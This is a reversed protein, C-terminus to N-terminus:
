RALSMTTVLTAEGARVRCYYVGASVGNADWTVEHTGAPQRAHVLTAVRQGIANYVEVVVGAAEPLDYAITTRQSFPNPRSPSVAFTTPLGAAPAESATGGGSEFAYVIGSQGALYLRNGAIALRGGDEFRWVERGTEADVGVTAADSAVYVVGNAVVPPRYVEGVGPLSWLRRGTAEDYAVLSGSSTTFVKGYAIAPTVDGSRSWRVTNDRLDIASVPSATFLVSDRYAATRPWSYGPDGFQMTISGTGADFAYFNTNSWGAYVAADGYTPAWDFQQPLDVFWLTEGTFADYAFMGGYYGGNVFVKGAAVTPAEGMQSQTAFPSQWLRAGTAANLATVYSGPTGTATQIYVTGYAYAPMGADSVPGLGYGWAEEGDEASLAILEVGGPYSWVTLYVHDQAVIPARLGYTDQTVQKSWAVRLPATLTDVPNFGTHQANYGFQAWVSGSASIVTFPAAATPGWTGRTDRGRLYLVHEGGGLDSTEVEPAVRVMLRGFPGDTAEVPTGTGEAGVADVFYEVAAVGSAAVSSTDTVVAEVHLPVGAWVETAGLTLGRVAPGVTDVGTGTRFSVTVDDEPTGESAGDRDGDLGNGALDTLVGLASVQLEVGAPWFGTASAVTLTLGDASVANTTQVGTVDGGVSVVVSAPDIPESFTFVAPVDLGVQTAGALPTAAETVPPTTDPYRVSVEFQVVGYPGGVLVDMFGDQDVDQIVLADREGLGAGYTPSEWLVAKSPWGVVRVSEGAVVIEPATTEDVNAVRIGSVRSFGTQLTDVPAFTGAELVVVSGDARGVLVERTGDRELDAVDIATADSIATSEWELYRTQGDYVRVRGNGSFFVIETAADDDVNVLRIADVSGTSSISRWEVARTAGDLIVVQGATTGAVVETAGDGDVDGFAFATVTGLEASQWLVRPPSGGFASAQDEGGVFAEARGDGDADGVGLGVYRSRYWNLGEIDGTDWLLTHAADYAELAGGNSGSRESLATVLLEPVEDGDLDGVGLRFPGDTDTTRFEIEGSASDGVFLVDPGSSLHGAGWVVEVTGDGDPDGLAINTTSHEPNGVRWLVERTSARYSIVPGWQGAGVVIEWEGRVNTATLASLDDELPIEWLPTRYQGDFARLAYGGNYAVIEMAADADVNALELLTGFGDAYTWQVEHTAGDFVRGDSLVIENRGDGDVDGVEADRVSANLTWEPAGTAEDFVRISTPGAVVIERQGDDDVDVLFFRTAWSAEELTRETELALTAGDFTRLAGDRFLAVVTADAGEGDVEVWRLPQDEYDSGPFFPSSAAVDYGSASPKLVFFRAGTAPTSWGAPRALGTVLIEDAGDGDLDRVHLGHYGLDGGLDPREWVPTLYQASAPRVALGLFLVAAGFSFSRPLFTM